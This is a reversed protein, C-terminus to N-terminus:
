KRVREYVPIKIELKKMEEKIKGTIKRCNCNKAHELHWDIRQQLTPNGPMPHSLHWEKNLQPKKTKM